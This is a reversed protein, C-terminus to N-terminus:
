IRFLERANKTTALAVEEGSIKKIRAIEEAVYKIYLPENREVFDSGAKTLVEAPVALYPSDTELVIRDLPISSIIEEPDPLAPVRKFILGNFGFYLGLNYFREAQKLDGTYCHVVGKLKKAQLKYSKLFEILDDHAKRCHLIVPLDLEGALKVQLALATQQKRRQAERKAKNKPEYYYDLGFEGIAVVKGKSSSLALQKYKEYEFEEAKTEFGAGSFGAEGSGRHPALLESQLELEDVHRKEGLHIPHLGVAAYVGNEYKEALEVARKSTLYQSGVNIMWVDSDLSRQLVELSDEKYTNFNLHAHTDVLM